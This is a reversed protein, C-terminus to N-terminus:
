ASGARLLASVGSASAFTDQGLAQAVAPDTIVPHPGHSVESVHMGGRLILVLLEALKEGPRHTLTKMNFPVEALAATLGIERAFRGLPVLLAHETVTTTPERDSVSM